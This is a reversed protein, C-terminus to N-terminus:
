CPAPSARSTWRNSPMAPSPSAITASSIPEQERRNRGTLRRDRERIAAPVHTIEFGSPKARHITGGLQDFAKLFFSRVFFPQLRRAEAREMEEKVKFLRDLAVDNGPCAGNRDLLARSTITTSRTTSGEADAQARVEPRDGYRIAEILLDKLSVGEFSKASSTSSAVRSPM